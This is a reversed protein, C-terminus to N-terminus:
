GAANLQAELDTMGQLIADFAPASGFIMGQMAAYDRRLAGEMARNPAIAFDPARASGLDLDRAAFFMRAHAACDAGLARDALAARGVPSAMMKYLDYYHRSVRQGDAKMVGTTEQARRLGHLIVVKDWFTREAEVTLVGPVALDLDAADAEAYPRLTRPAHPDLASKAGCEIKVWPRVYADAVASAAAYRLRLSQQDDPDPEAALTDPPLGTRAAVDAIISGLQPLLTERLYTRCARRIQNLTKTRKHRSMAELDALSVGQGLDERFVVIDIDESFRDILGHAKSLSTGGKFLLRPAGRPRGNFLLDLTWCVWFDKEANQPTTGLRQATATFLGLRSDPDARMVEEFAPNM